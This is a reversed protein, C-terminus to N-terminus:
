PEEGQFRNGSITIGQNGIFGIGPAGHILNGCILIDSKGLCEIGFPSDSHIINGSVIIGLHRQRTNLIKVKM